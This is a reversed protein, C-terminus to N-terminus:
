QIIVYNKSNLVSPLYVEASLDSYLDEMWSPVEDGNRVTIEEFGEFIGLLGSGDMLFREAEKQLFGLGRQSCEPFVRIDARCKGGNNRLFCRWQRKPGSIDAILHEDGCPNLVGRKLIRLIISFESGKLMITFPLVMWYQGNKGPLSNLLDLFGDESGQEEALAKLEMPLPVKERDNPTDDKNTSDSPGFAPPLFFKSYRELAERSLSVGKDETVVAALAGAELAAKERATGPSSAKGSALIERRLQSILAPQLSLSFFRTFVLLVVSLTDKPLGLNMAQRFLERIIPKEGPTITTKESLHNQMSMSIEPPRNAQSIAKQPTPLSNKTDGKIPKPNGANPPSSGRDNAKNAPEPQSGRSKAEQASTSQPKHSAPKDALQSKPDPGTKVPLKDPIKM